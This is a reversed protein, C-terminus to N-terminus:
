LLFDKELRNQLLVDKKYFSIRKYFSIKKYFSFMRRNEVPCLANGKIFITMKKLIAGMAWKSDFIFFKDIKLANVLFFVGVILNEVPCLANGISFIGMKKLIAGM